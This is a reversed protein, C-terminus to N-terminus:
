GTYDKIQKRRADDRLVSLSGDLPKGQSVLHKVWLQKRKASESRGMLGANSTLYSRILWAVDCAM